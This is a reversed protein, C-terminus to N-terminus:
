KELARMEELLILSEKQIQQTELSNELQLMNVSRTNTKIM